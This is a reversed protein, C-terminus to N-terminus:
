NDTIIKHIKIDHKEPYVTDVLLEKPICVICKGKYDNLFRDYFGGGYGLRYNNKDVALAPVIVLDIVTKSCASCTPEMTHFCSECLKDGIKYQCCELEKEKIRPLYFNKTKDDLISLLNVESELPYYIMINKSKKYEDTQCLKDTLITSIEEMNIKNRKCKAWKRLSQKDM